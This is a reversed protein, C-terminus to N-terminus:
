SVVDVHSYTVHALRLRSTTSARRAVGDPLKRCRVRILRARPQYEPGSLASTSSASRRTCSGGFSVLPAVFATPLEFPPSETTSEKAVVDLGACQVWGSRIAEAVAEEDVIGGRVVAVRAYNL